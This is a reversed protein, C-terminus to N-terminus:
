LWRFRFRIHRFRRMESLLVNSTHGDWKLANLIGKQDLIPFMNYANSHEPAFECTVFIKLMKLKSWKCITILQYYIIHVRVMGTNLSWQRCNISFLYQVTTTRLQWQISFCFGWLVSSCTIVTVGGDCAWFIDSIVFMSIYAFVYFSFSIATELLFLDLYM